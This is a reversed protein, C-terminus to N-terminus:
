LQNAGALQRLASPKETDTESLMKAASASREALEAQEQAQQAEARQQRIAAVQDDPVIVRAPVGAMEGYEDILQDLDVKDLISPDKTINVMEGVFGAFGRLSALGIAKQAQGMISIYEIRLEQGELEQPAPPILNRRTMIGFVRDVLPAYLDHDLRGMLPGLVLLKEERREEIETATFERRDSMTLMLFLDTHFAANIRYRHEDETEKLDKLNPAMEYLPRLGQFGERSDTYTIGGPLQSVTTNKLSTPGVLPPNVQKDIAQMKRKQFLQLAKIDGLATMGPSNTSYVDEGSTKWRPAMIPWEEYGSERLFRGETSNREYYCDTFPFSTADLARDPDYNPNPAIVHVVEIWTELQDKRVATRVANSFRSADPNEPDPGGFMEVLQRVTMRFERMFVRVRGKADNALYYSGIPLDVVRIVDDDDELVLIAGTGFIGLDEYLVPLKDYTNSRTFVDLMRRTVTSVWDKVHQQENLNPDAVTLRLWPRAPSSAGSMIGSALTSAAFVATSDIIKDNRRSGRNKDTLTFRARLPSINDGLERWHADFPKREEQFQQRWREYREKKKRVAESGNAYTASEDAWTAPLNAAM